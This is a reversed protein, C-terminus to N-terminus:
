FSLSLGLITRRTSPYYATEREFSNITLALEPDSGPYRTFLFWNELSAFINLQAKQVPLTYDLRVQDIRFFNGSHVAYEINRLDSFRFNAMQYKGNPNTDTRTNEVYHRSLADYTAYSHMITQGGRGHGSVTFQWRNWGLSLRISGTVAPYANGMWEYSGKKGDQVTYFYGGGIKEGNQLKAVATWDNVVDLIFYPAQTDWYKYYDGDATVRNGYFSLNSSVSYRVPGMMGHVALSLDVGRNTLAYQEKEVLEPSSPAYLSRNLEYTFMIDKNVYGSASLDLQTDGLLFRAQMSVDRRTASAFMPYWSSYVHWINGVTYYKDASAWSASLSWDKWWDPLARRLFPEQILNWGLTVSHVQFGETFLKEEWLQHFAYDVSYRGNWDYGASLATEKYQLTQPAYAVQSIGYQILTEIFDVSDGKRASSYAEYAKNLYEKVLRDDDGFDIGTKSTLCSAEIRRNQQEEKVRRFRGDLHVRHGKWRGTWGADIGWQYGSPKKSWDDAHASDYENYEFYDKWTAIYSHYSGSNYEGLGRVYLGPFPRFEIKGQLMLESSRSWDRYLTTYDPESYPVNALYDMLWYGPARQVQSSNWRGATELSLWKLPQYEASWSAAYRRHSDQRGPYPGNNDLMSFDAYASWKKGGYQAYLYHNQLFTPELSSQKGEQDPDSTPYGWYSMWEAQSMPAPEHALSQFGGTFAYGAHFGKQTARKTTVLVVGPAAEAGWIGMASAGKLVEIKGISEPAIGDLSRVRSGDVIFLPQLGPRVPLGHIYIDPVMGPAGPTSAVEVGAEQILELAHTSFPRVDKLTDSPAQAYALIPSVLLILFLKKMELQNSYAFKSMVFSICVM